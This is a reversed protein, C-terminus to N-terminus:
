PQVVLRKSGMLQQDQILSIIYVGPALDQVELPMTVDMASDLDIQRVMKGFADRVILRASKDQFGELVLQAQNSAPNPFVEITSAGVDGATGWAQLGEPLITTPDGSLGGALTGSASLTVNEFVAKVEASGNLSYAMMGIYICDDLNPFTIKYALRWYSGNTSTYSKIDNGKRVIRLWKVRSRNSHSQSVIGGYSARWERRVRRTSYNKLVGARRAWPDLSERVMLGAYGSTNISALEATLTGDGCLPHYVYTAKDAERCDHWCGDSTLTFSEDDVDYDSTTQGDCNLSGDNPGESWGCPLGIIDVYATCDDENGAGDKITVPIAITNGLEDCGITLDASVFEVTGCNDSSAAENWVQNATLSIDQQGSFDITIDKCVAVPDEDDYVKLYHSCSEKNGYIDKVRWQVQYRGVPFFGSPDFVRSTWSGLSGGNNDVLRYRAKVEAVECNDSTIPFSFTVTAGCQGADTGTSIDGPCAIKPKETDTISVTFSCDIAQNGAKDSGSYTVTTTGVPFFDGPDYNSDSTSEPCNDGLTPPTWNAIAGCDGADNFLNIPDPCNSFTPVETDIITVTFSCDTADNGAADSGTYTVTTSGVTFFDGPNHSSNSSVAPCNDSLTPPTWSVDTGCDGADNNVSTNGPCNSFIPVENDKVTVNFNCQATNGAADSVSAMVSGTGVGFFSGSAPNVVLNPGPCNDAFNVTYNVVAGCQGPDNNVTIDAPCTISPDETDNVTVTFVCNTAANGAADSGSYTVTTSGVPFFDGPNHSSNSSVAPCNDSLTPPTWAVNAGCDGQDNSVSSNGPCNSFTPAQDDTVTVQATCKDSLSGDSVTLEVTYPGGVAFPGSNDLSLQLADGDPDTSNDDVQAPTISAECTNPATSVTINKCNAVPPQNCAGNTDNVFVAVTCDTENGHIDFFFFKVDLNGVDNCNLIARNANVNVSTGCNDTLSTVIDALVVDAFFSYEGNIDLDVNIASLCTFVPDENDTVTVDFSCNDTRGSDDTATVNVTTTGVNFATSPNQSYTIAVDSDCNDTATAEFIVVASCLGPDNNVTIDAPCSVTPATNDRAEITPNIVISECGNADKIRAQYTGAALNPFTASAQYSAGSNISYMYPATGGAPDVMLITGGSVGPCTLTSAAGFTLRPCVRGRIRINDFGLEQMDNCNTRIRVQLSNGTVPVPFTFDAFAGTVLTGFPGFTALNNDTDQRLQGGFGATSNNGAFLGIINWGTNDMNYEVMIYDDNKWRVEAFRSIGLAVQVDLSHYSSVNIANLTVFGDKSNIDFRLTSQVDEGAWYWSGDRTGATIAQQHYPAPNMDTRGWFDQLNINDFPNSTYRSAEGDTEFSEQLLTVQATSQFHLFVACLLLFLSKTHNM